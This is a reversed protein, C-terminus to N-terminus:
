PTLEPSHSHVVGNCLITPKIIAGFVEYKMRRRDGRYTSTVSVSQSISEGIRELISDLEINLEM